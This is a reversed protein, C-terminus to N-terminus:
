GEASLQELRALRDLDRAGGKDASAAM